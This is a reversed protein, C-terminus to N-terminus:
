EHNQHLGSFGIKPVFVSNLMAIILSATLRLLSEAQVQQGSAGGPLVQMVCTTGDVTVTQGDRLRQTGNGTGLVAPIGHERAILCRAVPRGRWRHLHAYLKLFIVKRALAGLNTYFERLLRDYGFTTM